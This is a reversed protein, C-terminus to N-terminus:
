RRSRGVLPGLSMRVTYKILPLSSDSFFSKRTRQYPYPVIINEVHQRRTQPPPPRCWYILNTEGKYINVIVVGIVILFLGIVSQWSVHQRYIFYSLLTVTFVGLGAWTSYVLALPLKGVTLSLFYFSIIYSCSLIISPLVRTFNKTAPLLMTGLVEFAIAGFLFLYFKM